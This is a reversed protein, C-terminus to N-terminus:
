FFSFASQQDSVAEELSAAICLGLSRTRLRMRVTATSGVINVSPLKTHPKKAMTTADRIPAGVDASTGV